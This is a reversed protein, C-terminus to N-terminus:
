HCGASSWARAGCDCFLGQANADDDAWAGGSGDCAAETVPDLVLTGATTSGNLLLTSVSTAYLYKDVVVPTKKSNDILTLTKGARGRTLKYSGQLLEHQTCPTDLCRHAWYGYNGDSSFTTIDGAVLKAAPIDLELLYKPLSPLPRSDAEASDTTTNVAGGCAAVAALMLCALKQM